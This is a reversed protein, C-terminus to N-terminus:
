GRQQCGHSSEAADVSHLFGLERAFFSRGEKEKLLGCPGAWLAEPILLVPREDDRLSLSETRANTLECM